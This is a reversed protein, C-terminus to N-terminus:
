AHGTAIFPSSRRTTCRGSTPRACARASWLRPPASSRRASGGGGSNKPRSRTRADAAPVLGPIKELDIITGVIGTFVLRDNAHITEEPAVPGIMEGERGIEILFLGPLHRLGPM